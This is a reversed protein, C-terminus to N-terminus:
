WDSELVLRSAMQHQTRSTSQWRNPDHKWYRPVVERKGAKPLIVLDDPFISFFRLYLQAQLNAFTSTSMAAFYSLASAHLTLAVGSIVGVAHLYARAAQTMHTAPTAMALLHRGGPKQLPGSIDRRLGYILLDIPSMRDFSSLRAALVSKEANSHELQRSLHNTKKMEAWLGGELTSVRQEVKALVAMKALLDQRVNSLEGDLWTIQARAGSQMLEMTGLKVKLANLEANNEIMDKVHQAAPQVDPSATSAPRKWPGAPERAWPGPTPMLSSSSIMILSLM